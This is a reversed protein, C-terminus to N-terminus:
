KAVLRIDIKSQNGGSRQCNKLLSMCGNIINSYDDDLRMCRGGASLTGKVLEEDLYFYSQMFLLRMKECTTHLLNDTVNRFIGLFLGEDIRAILDLPRANRKLTQGAIVQFQKFAEEGYQKRFVNVKDIKFLAIGVKIPYRHMESQYQTIQDQAYKENALKTLPDLMALEELESIRDAISGSPTNDRFLESAGVVQGNSDYLPSVRVNIPVRYGEKHRLFIEDEHKTRHAIAWSLPCGDRCLNNGEKDVHKLLSDYCHRGIMEDATYGTISEAADNWYTIKRDCTVTYLGDFLSDLVQQQDIM